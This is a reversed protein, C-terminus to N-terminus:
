SDAGKPKLTGIGRGGMAGDGEALRRSDREGGWHL